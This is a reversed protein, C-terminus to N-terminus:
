ALHDAAMIPSQMDGWAALTRTQHRRILYGVVPYLLVLLFLWGPVPCVSVVDAHHHRPWPPAYVPVCRRQPFYFHHPGAARHGADAATGDAAPWRVCRVLLVVVLV